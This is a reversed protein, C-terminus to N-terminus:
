SCQWKKVAPDNAVEHLNTVDALFNTRLNNSSTNDALWIGDGWRGWLRLGWLM